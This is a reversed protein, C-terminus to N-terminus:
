VKRTLLTKSELYESIVLSAMVNLAEVYTFKTESDLSACSLSKRCYMPGRLSKSIMM